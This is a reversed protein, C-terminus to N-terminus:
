PLFSYSVAPPTVPLATIGLSLRSQSDIVTIESISIVYTLNLTRLNYGQVFVILKSTDPQNKTDEFKQPIHWPTITNTQSFLKDCNKKVWIPAM